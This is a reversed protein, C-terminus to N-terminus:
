AKWIGFGKAGNSLGIGFKFFLIYICFAFQKEYTFGFLMSTFNYNIFFKYQGM